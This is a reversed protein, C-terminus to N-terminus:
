EGNHHNTLNSCKNCHSAAEAGRPHVASPAAFDEKRGGSQSKGADRARLRDLEIAMPLARHFPFSRHHGNAEIELGPWAAYCAPKRRFALPSHLVWKVLNVIGSRGYM